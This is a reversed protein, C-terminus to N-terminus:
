RIASAFAAFSFLASNFFTGPPGSLGMWKLLIGLSQGSKQDLIHMNKQELFINIINKLLFEGAQARHLVPNLPLEQEESGNLFERKNERCKRNVM